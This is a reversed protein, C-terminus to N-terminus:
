CQVTFANEAPKIPVGAATYLVSDVEFHSRRLDFTRTDDAAIEVSAFGSFRWM